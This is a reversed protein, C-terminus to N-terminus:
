KQEQQAEADGSGRHGGIHRLGSRRHGGIRGGRAGRGGRRGRRRAAAFDVLLFCLLFFFDVVGAGEVLYDNKRSAGRGGCPPRPTETTVARGHDIDRMMVMARITSIASRDRGASLEICVHRIMRTTAIPQGDIRPARHAAPSECATCSESSRFLRGSPHWADFLLSSSRPSPLRPSARPSCRAQGSSAPRRPASARHGAKRGVWRGKRHNSRSSTM